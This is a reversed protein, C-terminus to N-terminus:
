SAFMDEIYEGYWDLESKRHLFVFKYARKALNWSSSWESATQIHKAPEPKMFAIETTGLRGVSEQVPHIQHLSSFFQDLNIPQGKVINSWEPQPIGLPAVLSNRLQSVAYNHDRAL